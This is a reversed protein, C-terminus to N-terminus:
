HPARIEIHRAERSRVWASLSRIEEATAVMICGFTFNGLAVSARAVSESWGEPPGHVGIAGGTYGSKRQASTPYGVPIFLHFGSVSKRPTGLAYRGLPTKQDGERRKGVGGQGLSVKHRGELRGGAGCRFLVRNRTDVVLHPAGGSCPSPAGIAAVLTLTM